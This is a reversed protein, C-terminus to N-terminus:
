EDKIAIKMQTEAIKEGNSTTEGRIITVEGVTPGMTITTTLTEGVAPRRYCHFRKVEGIYGVPPKEAGTEKARYGAFASASQAIHEVLGAEAVLGDADLFFNGPAITLSTTCREDEADVLRDVMMIPDRQPILSQIDYM